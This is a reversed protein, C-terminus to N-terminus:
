ARSASSSGSNQSDDDIEEYDAEEINDFRSHRRNNRQTRNSQSFNRQKQFAPHTMMLSRRIAYRIFLYLVYIFVIIALLRLM